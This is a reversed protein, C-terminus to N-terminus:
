RTFFPGAIIRLDPDNFPDAITDAGLIDGKFDVNCVLLEAFIGEQCFIDTHGVLIQMKAFRRWFIQYIQNKGFDLQLVDTRLRWVLGNFIAEPIEQVDHIM